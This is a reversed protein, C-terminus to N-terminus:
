PSDGEFVVVAVSIRIHIPWIPLAQVKCGLYFGTEERPWSEIKGSAVQL